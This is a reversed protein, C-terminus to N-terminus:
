RSKNSRPENYGYREVYIRSLPPGAAPQRSSHRRLFPVRTRYSRSPPSAALAGRRGRRHVRIRGSCAGRSLFLVERIIVGANRAMVRRCVCKPRPLPSRSQINLGRMVIRFKPRCNLLTQSANNRAHIYKKRFLGARTRSYTDLFAYSTITAV